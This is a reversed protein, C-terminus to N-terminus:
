PIADKLVVSVEDQIEPKGQQMLEAVQEALLVRWPRNLVREKEGISIQSPKIKGEDIQKMIKNPDIDVRYRDDINRLAERLIAPPYYDEIAGLKWVHYDNQQILGERELQEAEPKAEVDLISYNPISDSTMGVWATLQSKGGNMGNVPVVLVDTLDRGALKALAKVIIADSLREVFVIRNASFFVESPKVGIEAMMPKIEAVRQVTTGNETLKVLWTRAPDARDVFVPSHTSVFTQNGEAFRRIIQFFQKQYEFHSHSEPEEIAFIFGKEPEASMAFIINLSSQAGAGESTIPIRKSKKVYVQGAAIDLKLNTVRAVASEIGEYKDHEVDATSQDWNWLQSQLQPEVLTMREPVVPNRVDRVASILKFRGRVRERVKGCIADIKQPDLPPIPRAADHPQGTGESVSKTIEAPSAPRDDLVLPLRGLKLSDTRWIGQLGTVKRSFSLTGVDENAFAMYDLLEGPLLERIDDEELSIKVSFEIPNQVQKNFWLHDNLGGTSGGTPSFNDFLFSLGELINSKGASNKGILVNLEALGDLQIDRLSRFNRIHFETIKM